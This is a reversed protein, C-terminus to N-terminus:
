VIVQLLKQLLSVVITLAFAGLVASIIGNKLRFGEVLMAALGFIIVNLVFNLIPALIWTLNLIGHLWGLLGNLLGFVLASIIATQPSVIEVGLFPLKSIIFLALAIVLTTVIFNIIWNTPSAAATRIAFIPAASVVSILANM